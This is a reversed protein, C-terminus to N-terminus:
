YESDRQLYRARDDLESTGGPLPVKTTYSLIIAHPKETTDRM